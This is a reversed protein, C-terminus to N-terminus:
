TAKRENHQANKQLGLWIDGDKNGFGNVYDKWPRTFDVDGVLRRLVVVWKDKEYCFVQCENAIQITTSLEHTSIEATPGEENTRKETSLM